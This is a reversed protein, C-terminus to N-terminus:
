RMFIYSIKQQLLKNSIKRRLEDMLAITPVIIVVINPKKIALFSSIVFTKWFSTPANLLINEWNLLKNLVDSQERHLTWEWEVNFFKKIIEDDWCIPSEEDIYPYLWVIRLLHNILEEDNHSWLFKILEDRWECENVEILNYIKQLEEFM